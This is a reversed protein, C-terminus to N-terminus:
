KWDDGNMEIHDKYAEYEADAEELEQAEVYEDDSMSSFDQEDFLVQIKKEITSTEVSQTPSDDIMPDTAPDGSHFGVPPTKDFYVYENPVSGFEFRRGLDARTWLMPNPQKELLLRVERKEHMIQQLNKPDVFLVVQERLPGKVWEHFERMLANCDQPKSLDINERLHILSLQVQWYLQEELPMRREDM